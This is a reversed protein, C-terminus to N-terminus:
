LVQMILFQVDSIKVVNFKYIRFSKSQITIAINLFFGDPCYRAHRTILRCVECANQAEKTYGM